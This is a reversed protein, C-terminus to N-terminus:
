SRVGSDFIPDRCEQTQHHGAWRHPFLQLQKPDTFICFCETLDMKCAIEANFLIKDSNEEAAIWREKHTPTLSMNDRQTTGILPNFKLTIGTIWTLAEQACEHPNRCGLLHDKACGICTCTLDPVHPNTQYPQVKEATQILDAVTKIKHKKLLCKSPISTLPCPNTKIHYWAPLQANIDPAIRLAALNTRYRKATDIYPQTPGYGRFWRIQRNQGIESRGMRIWNWRKRKTKRSCTHSDKGSVREKDEDDEKMEMTMPGSWSEVGQCLMVQFGWTLGWKHSTREGNADGLSVWNTTEEKM